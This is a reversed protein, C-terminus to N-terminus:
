LTAAGSFSEIMPSRSVPKRAAGGPMLCHGALGNMLKRHSVKSRQM